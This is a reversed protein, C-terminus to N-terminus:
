FDAGTFDRDANLILASTFLLEDGRFISWKDATRLAGPSCLTRLDPLLSFYPSYTPRFM